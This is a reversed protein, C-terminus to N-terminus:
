PGRPVLTLTHTVTSPLLPTARGHVWDEHGALFNPSLPHGSQGGPMNFIAHDEHGPSVVMRESQGFDPAAVRPMHSDGPMPEAPAALWRQGFPLAGAMPHVIHTTNRQGWTARSLPTGDHGLVAIADDIAALQVEHWSTRGAPLWGPPQADLLRAVVTPWRQTARAFSALRDQARLADDVGAFLQRYLADVYSRTLRYAVSDVDAHGTWTSRLLRLFEARQPTRPMARAAPSHRCRASAGPASTCRGTTSRSATCPRKTPVRASRASITACRTRARVSTPAATASARTPPGRSSARTPRGSNGRPRISARRTRSRHRRGSGCRRRRPAPLTLFPRPGPRSAPRADARRDDLRHPRRCRGCGHEAGAPRLAPRDGTSRSREDRARARHVRLQRCRPRPRDLPHRLSPRRAGVGPRLPERRRAANRGARWSGRNARRGLALDVLRQRRPIPEPRRPDSELEILDLYNGYSNTFGWAVRGNSGAVIAPVGPLTVGAIRKTAGTGKTEFVARYWIHPLRLTLHMDVSVIAAGTGSRTGAIAWDNSGLVADAPPAGSDAVRAAGAKGFWPPAAPPIPALPEAIADADLPVDYASSTPLLFALQEPSTQHDRLWGRGFVRHLQDDQLDFYMAWIVLLTDEARWPRPAERLVGYEFPRAGLAALGANVGAVYRALFARDAASLAAVAESARAGFRHIRRERDVPLLTPGLLAALEGSAAHRLLDMQFFREQAHTFGIAYALDDRSAGLLTPVGHEDRAVTVPASLGPAAISGDITPLSARLFAYGGGAVLVLLALLVIGGRALWRRPRRRPSFARRM